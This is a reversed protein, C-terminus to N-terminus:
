ATRKFPLDSITVIKMPPVRYGNMLMEKEWNQIRHVSFSILEGVNMVAYEKILDTPVKTNTHAFLFNWEKKYGISTVLFVERFAESM